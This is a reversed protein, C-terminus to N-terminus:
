PSGGIWHGVPEVPMGLATAVHVELRAGRSRWWGDLTAIGDSETVQRLAHRLYWEWTQTQDGGATEAPNLVVFGNRRLVAAAGHFAPYNFDPLGTMPGAVYLSTM